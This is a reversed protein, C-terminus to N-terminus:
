RVAGTAAHGYPLHNGNSGPLLPRDAKENHRRLRPACRVSKPAMLYDCVVKRLEYLGHPDGYQLATIGEGERTIVEQTLQRIIEM